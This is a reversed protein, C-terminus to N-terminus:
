NNTTKKADRRKSVKKANASADLEDMSEIANDAAMSLDNESNRRANSEFSTPVEAASKQIYISESYLEDSTTKSVNARAQGIGSLLAAASALLLGFCKTNTSM